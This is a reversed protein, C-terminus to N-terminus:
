PSRQCLLATGRRVYASYLRARGSHCASPRVADDHQAHVVFWTADDIFVVLYVQQKKGGPVMPLYPGFKIDSQWLDNRHRRQFRRAATGISAYMRM